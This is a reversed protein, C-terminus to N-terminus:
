KQATTAAGEGPPLSRILGLTAWASGWFSSIVDADPKKKKSSAFWSGDPKQAELLYRWAAQMPPNGHARGAIGLAYLSQGTAYPDSSREPSWSWGGDSNQRKILQDALERAREPQGRQLAVLLRVVYAENDAGLKAGDLWEEARQRLKAIEPQKEDFTGLALIAWGTAAEDAEADPRKQPQGLWKWSGDDRQTKTLITLTTARLDSPRDLRTRGHLVGADLLVNMAEMQGRGDKELTAKDALTFKREREHWAALKADDINFGHRSAEEHCRILLPGHHCSMCKRQDLWALGEKEIWPLAKEVARRVEQPAVPQSSAAPKAAEKAAPAAPPVGIALAVTLTLSVGIMTEGTDLGDSGSTRV